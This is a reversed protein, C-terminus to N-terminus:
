IVSLSPRRSLDPILSPSGRCDSVHLWVVRETKRGGKALPPLPPRIRSSSRRVFQACWSRGFQSPRRTATFTRLGGRGGVLEYTKRKKPNSPDFDTEATHIQRRGRNQYGKEWHYKRAICCPPWSKLPGAVFLPLDIAFCSPIPWADAHAPEMTEPLIKADAEGGVSLLWWTAVAVALWLREARAPDDMRTYQWQWGGSKIRKFGQEIWARLGYWCFM